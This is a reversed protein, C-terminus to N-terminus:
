FDVGFGVRMVVAEMRSRFDAVVDSRFFVQPTMYAKVAAAVFANAGTRDFSRSYGPELVVVVNRDYRMLPEVEETTHRRTISVGGGLLAHAWANHGFQHFQGLSVRTDQIRSDSSRYGYAGGPLDVPATQWRRQTNSREVALETKWHETWYVGVQGTLTARRNAWDDYINEQRDSLHSHLWGASVTLDARPLRPQQADALGPVVVVLLCALTSRLCDGPTRM